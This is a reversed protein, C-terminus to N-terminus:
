SRAAETEAMLQDFASVSKPRVMVACRVELGADNLRPAYDPIDKGEIIRARGAAAFGRAAMELDRHFISTIHWDSNKM